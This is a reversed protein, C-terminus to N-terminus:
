LMFLHKKIKELYKEVKKFSFEKPFYLEPFNSFQKKKYTSIYICDALAKEPEAILFEEGDKKWNFGFFFFPEFSPGYFSWSCSKNRKHACGFCAYHITSNNL